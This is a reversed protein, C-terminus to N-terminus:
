GPPTRPATHGGTRTAAPPAPAPAGLRSLERALNARAAAEWRERAPATAYLWPRELLPELVARRGQRYAADGVHRYEERVEHCYEDFRPAPAALVWLDADLLVATAADRVEVPDAGAGARPGEGAEDGAGAHGATAQVAAVVRDVDADPVGLRRLVDAALAGSAWEDGGPAVQEGRAAAAPADYVADHLWGAVRVLAADREPLGTEAALVDVADLVEVLHRRGHYRRHPEGWRRLLDAGASAV